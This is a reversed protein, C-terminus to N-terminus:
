LSFVESGNNRNGNSAQPTADPFELSKYGHDCKLCIASCISIGKQEAATGPPRQDKTGELTTWFPQM